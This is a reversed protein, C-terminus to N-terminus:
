LGREAGCCCCCGGAWHPRWRGGSTRRLDVVVAAVGVVSVAIVVGAVAFHKGSMM